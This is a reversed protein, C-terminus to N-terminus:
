ERSDLQRVRFGRQTLLSPIASAGALHGSGIVVLTSRGGRALAAISDAMEQNRRDFLEKFMTRSSPDAAQAKVVAGSLAAADGHRWVAVVDDLSAKLSGDEAVCICARLSEIQECATGAGFVQM